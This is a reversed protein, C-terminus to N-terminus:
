PMIRVKGTDLEYVGGAIMLKGNKIEEEFEPINELQQMSWKVNAEVGAHIKQEMSLSPDIGTLAPDIHALLKQVGRWEKERDERPNLAATVAGCDEHGLVFILLTNINKVAFEISGLQDDGVINGAVRIVFLDGIGQDFIIEVPIRSDSCGLVTAFPMQTQTFRSRWDADVRRHLPKGSVFRENGEVLRKLAEDGDRPYKDDIIEGGQYDSQCSMLIILVIISIFYKLINMQSDRRMVVSDPCSYLPEPTLLGHKEIGFDM